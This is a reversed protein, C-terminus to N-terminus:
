RIRDLMAKDHPSLERRGGCLPWGGCGWFRRRKKPTRLVMAGGCDPCPPPTLPPAPSAGEGADARMKAFLEGLKAGDMLCLRGAHDKEMALADEAFGGPAVYYGHALNRATIDREFAAVTGVDIRAAGPAIRLAIRRGEKELLFDFRRDARVIYGRHRFLAAVADCIERRSLGRGHRAAALLLHRERQGCFWGWAALLVLLGGGGTAAAAYGDIAVGLGVPITALTLLVWPHGTIAGM